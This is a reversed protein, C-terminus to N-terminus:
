LNINSPVFRVNCHGSVEVCSSFLVLNVHVTSHLDINTLM